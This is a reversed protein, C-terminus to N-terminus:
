HLVRQVGNTTAISLARCGVSPSVHVHMYVRNNVHQLSHIKVAQLRARAYMVGRRGSVEVASHENAAFFNLKGLDALRQNNLQMRPPPLLLLLLLVCVSLLLM